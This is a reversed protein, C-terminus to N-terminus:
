RSNVPVASAQQLWQERAEKTVADSPSDNGAITVAIQQIIADRKELLADARAFLDQAEPYKAKLGEISELAYYHTEFEENFLQRKANFVVYDKAARSRLYELDDAALNAADGVESAQQLWYQIEEDNNQKVAQKVGEQLDSAHLIEMVTIVPVNSAEQDRNDADVSLFVFWAAIAIFVISLVVLAKKM